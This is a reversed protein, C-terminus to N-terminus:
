LLSFAKWLMLSMPLIGLKCAWGLYPPNHGNFIAKLAAPIFQIHTGNPNQREGYVSFLRLSVTEIQTEDSLARVLEEGNVKQMAYPSTPQLIQGERMPLERTDGYVSSSSAFILRQIELEKVVRTITGTGKVNVNFSRQPNDFSWRVRGLAALHIIHSIESKGVDKTSLECINKEIITVKGSNISNRLNLKSGRCFDDIVIVDLGEVVLRDVLHSGIFGAGGTVIIKKM